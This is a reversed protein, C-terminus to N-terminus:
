DEYEKIKNSFYEINKDQLKYRNEIIHSKWIDGWIKEMAEEIKFILVHDQQMHIKCHCKVCIPVGNKKDYRLFLSQSKLIFHHLCSYKGECICCKKYTKRGWEQYVRDATKMLKTMIKKMHAKTGEKRVKKKLAKEEKKKKERARYCDWCFNTNAYKKKVGCLKCPKNTKM